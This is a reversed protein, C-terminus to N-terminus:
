NENKSWQAFNVLLPVNAFSEISNNPIDPHDPIACLPGAISATQTAFGFPTAVFSNMAKM